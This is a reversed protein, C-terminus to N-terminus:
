INSLVQRYVDATAIATKKWSFLKVREIGKKTLEIRMKDDSLCKYVTSSISDSDMPNFYLAADGGVEPLSSTNSLVVPCGNSMAELVPIGFGEYLSPFVFIKANKYLLTLEDDSVFKHILRDAIKLERFLRKEESTFKEGTCIVHLDKDNHLINQISRILFIFNKYSSRNGVYLIYEEPIGNATVMNAAWPDQNLSNGLYIVSVKKENVKYIDLLDKKGSESIVIIHNARDILKKKNRLVTEVESQPFCDPYKEYILDYITIVVSKEGIYDLFYDDYYTPHFIDFDGRLLSDVVYKKNILSEDYQPFYKNRLMWLKGKGPFNNRGLFVPEIFGFQKELNLLHENNTYRFPVLATITNSKHFHRLLEYFYRSIGGFRQYQFIQHDYLVRMCNNM